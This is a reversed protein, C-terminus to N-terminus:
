KRSKTGLPEFGDKILLENKIDINQGHMSTLIFIYADHEESTPNFAHGALKLLEETVPLGLDYGAAIAVITRVSPAPSNNNKARIYYDSNLLTKDHFTSSKANNTQLIEFIRQWCTKKYKLQEAFQEKSKERQKIIEKPLLESQNTSIYKKERKEEPTLNLFDADKSDFRVSTVKSEFVLACDSMVEVAYDTLQLGENTATSIYAEANLIYKGDVFVFAGTQLLEKFERNVKYERYAEPITINLTLDRM